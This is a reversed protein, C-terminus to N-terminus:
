HAAKSGRRSLARVVLGVGGGVGGIVFGPIAILMFPLVPGSYPIVKPPHRIEHIFVYVGLGLGIAPGAALAALLGRSGWRFTAISGIFMPAIVLIWFM